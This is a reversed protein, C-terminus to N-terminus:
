RQYGMFGSQYSQGWGTQQGFLPTPRLADYKDASQPKSSDIDNAFAGSKMQAFVNAPSTNSNNNNISSPLPPVPPPPAAVFNNMPGPAPSPNFGTFQPQIPAPGSGFNGSTQFPSVPSLGGFPSGTPQALLMQNPVGTPQSMVFSQQAPAQPAQISSITGTTPPNVPRTPVFSNFGTQTPILPQLLGQNAPVPAYPGRPGNYAQSQLQVPPSSTPPLLGSQKNQLHQGMPIPSPGMGLGVQYSSPSVTSLRPPVAPSTQTSPTSSKRLESLRALQDFIDSETTRALSSASTDGTANISQTANSTNQVPVPTANFASNPLPPATAATSSSALTTSPPASPARPTVTTPTPILPKASSPRNTWADDDFGSTAPAASSTRTPGQVPAVSSSTQPSSTRQIQDSVNSLTKIDVSPPLTKSPQPRRRPAKLVGGPGAFLNPAPSRLSGGTEQAQLQKALEEDRRIQEQTYSSPKILNDTPKRKEIAKTVRLIDGERLGLSRMTSETIDALLTEDIKDREFSAAYRTCDDIDCGASLFFDFWDIKPTKKQPSASNAAQPSSSSSPRSLALPIDDESLRKNTSSKSSNKSMMRKVYRMDDLSMKETPVEVIVGNVKHLRIKDNSLGLFAADVRFQGTRDHWTRVQDAPPRSLESSQRSTSANDSSKRLDSSTRTPPSTARIVAEKQRKREVEAAIAAEKARRQAEQKKRAKEARAEEEERQRRETEAREEAERAAMAAAEASEREKELNTRSPLPPSPSLSLPELYSAPVVGETGKSNRCKWWEDGDKELIAVQDGEKVTLEDEGDATFDYLAIALETNNVDRSAGNMSHGVEELGVVDDDDDGDGGRAPIIDPSSQSFHVSAKKGIRASSQPVDRDPDFDHSPRTSALTKSSHVKDVIAEANEKSGAHFHLSTTNAGTVTIRVQKNKEITADEVDSTRWKQVPTKDSESAFFISGNGIGLTGKKKKGKKDADSVSWTKIPDPNPQSAKSSAVRDAPDVYTSAPRAQPSTTAQPPDDAAAAEVYNGPVYGARGGEKQSQVLLWDQDTEYVFLIEDEKVSLEGPAAAEYDYLVKVVSVHDAQEVYAAPVLGVPGDDDQPDSKLKVKWWDDDTNDLLLLIQNEKIQVEDDSQPQYDYSAKLVALYLIPDSSM